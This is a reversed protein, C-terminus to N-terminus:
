KIEETNPKYVYSGSNTVTDMHIVPSMLSNGNEDLYDIKSYVIEMARNLTEYNPATMHVALFLIDTLTGLRFYDGEWYYQLTTAVEPMQKVEELGTIKAIKGEGSTAIFYIVSAVGKFFPTIPSPDAGDPLMKGTLAHSVLMDIPNYGQFVEDIYPWTGGLRCGMEYFTIRDGKTYGQLFIVGNKFGLEKFMRRVKPDVVEYYQSLNVSPLIMLNPHNIAVSRGESTFRDALSVMYPEGDILVYDLIFETGNLYDEVTVEQKKSFSLAYEFKKCFDEYDYCIDAGRSGSADTPKLFVPYNITKVAEKYNDADVDYTKPVPVGYKECYEKFAIKDTSLKIMLEDAYFPKGIRKGVEMCASLLVDAYATTVGDINNKICYETLKDVDTASIMIAEDAIKKAPSDENYDAVVVYIGLKRAREVIACARQVGGLFLLKNGRLEEFM